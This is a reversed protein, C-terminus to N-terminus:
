EAKKDGGEEKQEVLHAKVFENFDEQVKKFAEEQHTRKETLAKFEAESSESSELLATKLDPLPRLVFMKGLQEFARVEDPVEVLEALTLKAHKSEANRTRLKTTTNALEQQAKAMEAQLSAFNEKDEDNLELQVLGSM